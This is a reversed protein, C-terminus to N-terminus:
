DEPCVRQVCAFLPTRKDCKMTRKKDRTKLSQIQKKM